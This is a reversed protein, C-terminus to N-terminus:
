RRSSRRNREYKRDFALATETVVPMDLVAVYAREGIQRLQGAVVPIFRAWTGWAATEDYRIARRAARSCSPSALRRITTYVIM